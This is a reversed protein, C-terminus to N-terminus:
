LGVGDTYFCAHKLAFCLYKTVGGGVFVPQVLLECSCARSRKGPLPGGRAVRVPELRECGLRRGDGASVQRSNHLLRGRPSTSTQLHRLRSSTKGAPVHSLEHSKQWDYRDNGCLVKQHHMGCVVFIRWALFFSRLLLFHFKKHHCHHAHHRLHSPPLLRVAKKRLESGDCTIIKPQM